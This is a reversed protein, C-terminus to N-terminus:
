GRRRAVSVTDVVTVKSGPQFTFVNHLSNQFATVSPDTSNALQHAAPDYVDRLSHNDSISNNQAPFSVTTRNASSPNPTGDLKPVLDDTNELSLVKTSRPIHIAGIPSGATIVNTVNFGGHAALNAAIIGGQSHGVALVPDNPGCGAKVLAERVAEEYSTLDGGLAHLNTDFDNVVEHPGSPDIGPVKTGPINVIFSTHVGGQADTWSIKQVDITGKTKRAATRVLGDLVGGLDAPPLDNTPVYTRAPFPNDPDGAGWLRPTGDDYLASLQRAGDQVTFPPPMQPLIPRELEALGGPLDKIIEDELGPHNVLFRELGPHNVVFRKLDSGASRGLLWHGIFFEGIPIALFPVARAAIMGTAWHRAEALLALASDTDRYAEAAGWLFVGHAGVEVAVASLGNPGDLAAAIAAEVRAAGIPDLVASAALDASVLLQQSEVALEALSTGCAILPGSVSQMDDLNAGIGGAGGSVSFTYDPVTTPTTM